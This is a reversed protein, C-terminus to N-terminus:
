EWGSLPGAAHTRGPGPWIGLSSRVHPVTGGEGEGGGVRLPPGLAQLLRANNGKGSDAWRIDQRSFDMMLLQNCFTEADIPLAILVISRQVHTATSVRNLRVFNAHERLYKHIPRSLAIENFDGVKALDRPDVFVSPVSEEALSQMFQNFLAPDRERVRSAEALNMPSCM